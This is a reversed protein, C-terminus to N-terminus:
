LVLDRGQPTAIDIAVSEKNRNAALFNAADKTPKGQGDKVWPPGWHRSEDGPGPREIKIIEAGLDGLIQMAWPGALVRTIDLVRTGGLAQTQQSHNGEM